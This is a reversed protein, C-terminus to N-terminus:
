TSCRNCSSRRQQRHLAQAGDAARLRNRRGFVFGGAPRCGPGSVAGAGHLAAHRARRRGADPEVVRHARHRFRQDQHPWRQQDPHEVAQHRSPSRRPTRTSFPMSCSGSSKASRASITASKRSCISRWRRATSWNWSSTRSNTTRATITFRCSARISAGAVAQAEHRFRQVMHAHAADRRLASKSIAKIAVARSIAPDFGRYVCGMAGQGLVGQIEYKGIKEPGGHRATLSGPGNAGAAQAAAVGHVHHRQRSDIRRRYTRRATARDQIFDVPRPGTGKGVDKTSFFPDFIKPLVDPAIGTGNDAVEVAVGDGDSRTTVTIVGHGADVAQAANTLLNLFVQNIQSPSCVITALDGFHKNVTISKLLHRALALTSNLGDNVNFSTVKSRDLRSFDKLNGVIEAMQGTGYLGDKVLGGLEKVVGQQKLQAIQASAPAFQRSLGEADNGARLLALLKECDDIADGLDPLKDAVTGLSNKVYALPTNIEHAVGAVMQGLSSMKESQILQAESEKLHQLAESLERTREAVRQELGLNAAKLKGGLYALLVLLAGAYAILYVRYREKDQLAAEVERNFLYTLNNLRPGSTLFALKAFLAEEASRANLLTQVARELKAANDRLSDPVTRPQAAATDLSSRQADQAFLYYQPAAATLTNLAQDLAPQHSKLAAAQAGLEAAGKLVDRLAVKRPATKPRQFERCVCPLRDVGAPPALNM